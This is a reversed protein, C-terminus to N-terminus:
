MMNALMDVQGNEPALVVDLIKSDSRIRSNYGCRFSGLAPKIHGVLGSKEVDHTHLKSSYMSNNKLFHTKDYDGVRNLRLHKYSYNLRVIKKPIDLTTSEFNYGPRHSKNGEKTKTIVDSTIFYVDIPKHPVTCLKLRHIFQMGSKVPGILGIINNCVTDKWRGISAIGTVCDYIATTHQIRDCLAKWQEGIPTQNTWPLFVKEAKEMNIRFM